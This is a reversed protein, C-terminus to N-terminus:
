KRVTEGDNIIADESICVEYIITQTSCIHHWNSVITHTRIDSNM